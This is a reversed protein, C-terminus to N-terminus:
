RVTGLWRPATPSPPKALSCSSPRLDDRAQEVAEVIGDVIGQFVGCHFGGTTINYLADFAYGGPGAHTHTATIMVNSDSFGDGPFRQQLRHVVTDKVNQTIFALECSVFLVRDTADPLAVLMARAHLPTAQSRVVNKVQGYGYMGVGDAFVQMTARGMGVHLPGNAFSPYFSFLFLLPLFRLAM